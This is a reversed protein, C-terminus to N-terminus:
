TFLDILDNETVDIRKVTGLIEAATMLKHISTRREAIKGRFGNFDNYGKSWVVVSWPNEITDTKLYDCFEALNKTAKSIDYNESIIDSLVAIDEKTSALLDLCVTQNMFRQINDM